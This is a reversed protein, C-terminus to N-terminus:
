VPEIKFIKKLKNIFDDEKLEPVNIFLRERARSLAVYCIRHEENKRLDPNLFVELEDSSDFVILVNDFEDGKSKHITKHNSFDETINVCLALQEYTNTEYFTAAVGKGLKSIESKVNNKVLLYFDYLPKNRYDDYKELLLYLSKIATKRRKDADIIDRELSEIEKIAKKIDGERAYEVAKLCSAIVKSRYKNNSSSKDVDLLEELLKDNMTQGNFDRRMANSTPNDRSLSCIEEANNCYKKAWTLAAMREGVLLKPIDGQINRIKQQVIDKRIANLLDIISNTSRRNDEMVYEKLAPLKFSSFQGPDAGQFSFISQAEDGIIGVITEQAGILKLIEVQLPHTDQFEDIYLYPFKARLVKLIFPYKKLLQYSFFLVDNHDM